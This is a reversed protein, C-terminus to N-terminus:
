CWSQYVGTVISSEGWVNAGINIRPLVGGVVHDGGWWDRGVPYGGLLCGVVTQSSSRPLLPVVDLRVDVLAAGSRLGGGVARCAVGGRVLVV